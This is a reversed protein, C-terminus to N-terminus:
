SFGRNKKIEISRELGKVMAPSFFVFFLLAFFVKSSEKTKYQGNKIGANCCCKM